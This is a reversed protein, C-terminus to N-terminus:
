NTPTWIRINRRLTFFGPGDFIGNQTPPGPKSSGGPSLSLAQPVPGADALLQCWPIFNLVLCRVVTTLLQSSTLKSQKKGFEPNQSGARLKDFPQSRARHEM